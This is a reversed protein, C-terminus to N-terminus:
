RPYVAPLAALTPQPKSQTAARRVWQRRLWGATHRWVWGTGMLAGMLVVSGMIWFWASVGWLVQEWSEPRLRQATRMLLLPLLAAGLLLSLFVVPPVTLFRHERRSRGSAPKYDLVTM